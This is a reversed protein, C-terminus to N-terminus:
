TKQVSPKNQQAVSDFQPTWYRTAKTKGGEHKLIWESKFLGERELEKILEWLQIKSEPKLKLFEM